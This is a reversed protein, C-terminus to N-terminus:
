DCICSLGLVPVMPSTEQDEMQFLTLVVSRLMWMDCSPFRLESLFSSKDFAVCMLVIAVFVPLSVRPNKATQM